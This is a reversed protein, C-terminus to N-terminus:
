APTVPSKDRSENRITNLAPSKNGRRESNNNRFRGFGKSESNMFKKDKESNNNMLNSYRVKPPLDPLAKM